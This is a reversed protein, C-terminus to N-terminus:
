NRLAFGNFHGFSSKIVQSKAREILGEAEPTPVGRCILEERLEEESLAASITVSASSEEPIDRIIFLQDRLGETRNRM